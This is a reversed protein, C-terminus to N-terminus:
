HSVFFRESIPTSTRPMVEPDTGPDEAAEDSDTLEPDQAVDSKVKVKNSPTENEDERLFDFIYSFFTITDHQGM